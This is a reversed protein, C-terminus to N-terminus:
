PMIKSLRSDIAAKNPFAGIIKSKIIGDRDIFFTTPIGSLGYTRAVTGDIDIIIPLSLDNDQLFDSITDPSEGINITLMVLETDQQADYVEQLYPMERRCPPCGTNWFNILLPRSSFDRLSVSKGDLDPLTFDPAEGGVTVTPPSSSGSGGGDCGTILLGLTFLTIAILLVKTLRDRM